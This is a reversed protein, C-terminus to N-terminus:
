SSGYESGYDHYDAYESHETYSTDDSHLFIFGEGECARERMVRALKPNRVKNIDIRKGSLDVFKDDIPM